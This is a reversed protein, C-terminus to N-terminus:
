TAVSEIDLPWSPRVNSQLIANIKKKGPSSPCGKWGGGACASPMHQPHNSNIANTPIFPM